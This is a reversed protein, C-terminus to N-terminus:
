ATNRSCSQIRASHIQKSIDCGAQLFYSHLQRVVDPSSKCLYENCGEYEKGGFDDETLNFTQLNSGTAGDFVLVREKLIDFFKTDM